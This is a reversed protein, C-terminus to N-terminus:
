IKAEIVPPSWTFSRVRMLCQGLLNLGKWKGQNLAEPNDPALGIGWIEDVPSAEVIMKQKTEMLTKLMEPNTYYKHLNAIFMAHERALIWAEENYGKVKRGLAKATKPDQNKQLLLAAMIEQDAFYEAKMYMFAAESNKFIHGSMEFRAPHWNSFVSDAQWFLVKDETEIIMM